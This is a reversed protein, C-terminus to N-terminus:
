INRCPSGSFIEPCPKTSFRHLHRIGYLLIQAKCQQGMRADRENKGPNGTGSQGRLRIKDADQLSRKGGRSYNILNDGHDCGFFAKYQRLFNFSNLLCLCYIGTSVEVSNRFNIDYRIGKREREKELGDMRSELVAYMVQFQRM